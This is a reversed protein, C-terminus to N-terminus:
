EFFILTIVHFDNKTIVDVCIWALFYKHECVKGM